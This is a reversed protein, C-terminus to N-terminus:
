IHLPLISHKYNQNRLHKMYHHLDFGDYKRISANSLFILKKEV